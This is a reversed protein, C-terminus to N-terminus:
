RIVDLHKSIEKKIARLYTKTIRMGASTRKSDPIEKLLYIIEKAYSIAESRFDQDHTNQENTKKTDELSM